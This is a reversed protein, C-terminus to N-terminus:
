ASQFDVVAITGANTVKIVNYRVPVAALGTGAAAAFSGLGTKTGNAAYRYFLSSIATGTFATELEITILGRMRVALQPNTVPNLSYDSSFGPFGSPILNEDNVNMNIGAWRQTPTANLDQTPPFAIGLGVSPDTVVCRGPAIAQGPPLGQTISVTSTGVTASIEVTISLRQGIEISTFDIKTADSTFTGIGAIRTDALIAALIESQLAAGTPKPNSVTYTTRFPAMGVPTIIFTITDGPAAGALLSTTISATAKTGGAGNAFEKDFAGNDNAYPDVGPRFAPM